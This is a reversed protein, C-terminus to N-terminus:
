HTVEKKLRDLIVRTKLLISVDTKFEKAEKEKERRIFEMKIPNDDPLKLLQEIGSKGYEYYKNLIGQMEANRIEIIKENIETETLEWIQENTWGYRASLKEFM